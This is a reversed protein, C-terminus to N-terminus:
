LSLLKKSLEVDLREPTEHLGPRKLLVFANNIQISYQPYFRVIEFGIQIINSNGAALIELMLEMM